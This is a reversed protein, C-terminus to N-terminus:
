ERERIGESDRLPDRQEENASVVKAKDWKREAIAGVRLADPPNGIEAMSLSIALEWSLATCFSASWLTPDTIKKSYVGVADEEDTYIVRSGGTGNAIEYAIPDGETRGSPDEIYRFKHCDSPYQYVYDWDEPTDESLESLTRRATLFNWDFDELATDRTLEWIAALHQAERTAETQSQIANRAGVHSLAQNWITLVSRAM